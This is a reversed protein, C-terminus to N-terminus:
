RSDVGDWIVRFGLDDASYSAGYSMQHACRCRDPGDRWSGGRVFRHGDARPDADGCWEAANGLVDFLGFPNATKSGGPALGDCGDDGPFVARYAPMGPDGASRGNAHAAAGAEDDGWWFRSWTGARACYEWEIASPLRYGHRQCYANAQHWTVRVKPLAAEGPEATPVPAPAHFEAVSVERVALWIPGAVRERRQVPDTKLHWPDAPSGGCLFEGGDIRVFEIGTRPDIRTRPSGSPPVTLAPAAVATAPEEVTTPATAHQKPQPPEVFVLPPASPLGPESEPARPRAAAPPEVVPAPSSVSALRQDGDITANAPDGTPMGGGVREIGVLLVAALAVGGIVAAGGWRVAARRWPTTAQSTAHDVSANADAAAPDDAVSGHPRPEGIGAALATVTRECRGLLGRLEEKRRSPELGPLAALAEVVARADPPRVAPDPSTASAVLGALADPVRVGAGGLLLSGRMAAAQWPALGCQPPLPSKGTVLAHLTAGLAFVDARPSGPDGRAQEPAMFAPTGAVAVTAQEKGWATALAVGLDGLKVAGDAGLLINDPKVDRHVIGQDHAVALGRAAEHVIWAALPWSLARQRLLLDAASGGALYEMVIYHLQDAHRVDYVRVLREDPIAAALRAERLFRRLFAADDVSPRLVKVAVDVGLNDHRGRYVTATAGEGIKELLRCPELWPCSGRRPLRALWNDDAATM